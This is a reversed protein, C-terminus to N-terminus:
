LSELTNNTWRFHGPIPGPVAMSASQKDPKPTSMLAPGRERSHCSSAAIDVTYNVVAAYGYGPLPIAAARSSDALQRGAPPGDPRRVRDAAGQRGTLPADALSERLSRTASSM